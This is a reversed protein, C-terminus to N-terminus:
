FILENYRSVGTGMRYAAPLNACHASQSTKLM